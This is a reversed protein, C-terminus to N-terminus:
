ENWDGAVSLTCGLSEATSGDPVEIYDLGENHGFDEYPDCPYDPDEMAKEVYDADFTKIVAHSGDGCNLTFLYLKM